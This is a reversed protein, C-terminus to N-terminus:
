TSKSNSLDTAWEESGEKPWGLAELRARVVGWAPPDSAPFSQEGMQDILTEVSDSGEAGTVRGEDRAFTGREAEFRLGRLVDGRSLMGVLKRGGRRGEAVPVSRLRTVVMLNGADVLTDGPQISVVKRQMIDAASMRDEQSRQTAPQHLFLRLVDLKTLIGVVRGGPALVPFANYDHRDFLALLDNLSTSPTVVIPATSM